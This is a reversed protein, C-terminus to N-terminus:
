STGSRYGKEMETEQKGRLDWGHERSQGTELAGDRARDWGLLGM